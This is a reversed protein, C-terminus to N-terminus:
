GFPYLNNRPLTGPIGVFSFPAQSHAHSINLDNEDINVSEFQINEFQTAMIALSSCLMQWLRQSPSTKAALLM